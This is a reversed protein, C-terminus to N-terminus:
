DSFYKQNQEVPSTVPLIEMFRPRTRIFNGYNDIVWVYYLYTGPILTDAVRHLTRYAGRPVIYKEYVLEPQGQTYIRLLYKFETTDSFEQNWAFVWEVEPGIALVTTPVVNITNDIGASVITSNGLQDFAEFDFDDLQAEAISYPFELSEIEQITFEHFASDRDQNYNLTDSVDKFRWEVRNLDFDGDSDIVKTKLRIKHDVVERNATEFSHVNVTSYAFHPLADLRITKTQHGPNVTILVSDIAYDPIQEGDRFAVVMWTGPDVKDFFATGTSDTTAFLGLEKIQVTAGVVEVQNVIGLSWVEFSLSPSVQDWPNSHPPDWQCGILSLTFIMLTVLVSRIKKTSYGLKLNDM